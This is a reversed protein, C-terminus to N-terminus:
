IYCTLNTKAFPLLSDASMEFIAPKQLNFYLIKASMEFIAPKQFNFYLIQAWKLFPQNRCVSTSFRRENWFISTEAFQLLSDASMEFIAPKQLSFYLIQAWKLFPQNRYISTSFRRENWFHSTEAFQLLSDASMEFIAIKCLESALFQVLLARSGLPYNATRVTRVCLYTMSVNRYTSSYFAQIEISLIYPHSLM